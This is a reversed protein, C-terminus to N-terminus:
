ALINILPTATAPFIPPVMFFGGQVVTDSPIAWLPVLGQPLVPALGSSVLVTGKVPRKRKKKSPNGSEPKANSTTPIKLNGNVSMAIASITGTGTAAIIAPEAQELLWRITEGDFKHCESSDLKLLERSSNPCSTGILLKNM